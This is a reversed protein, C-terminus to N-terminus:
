LSPLVPLLFQTVVPFGPVEEEKNWSRHIAKRNRFIAEPEAEMFSPCQGRSEWRVSLFALAGEVATFGVGQKWHTM